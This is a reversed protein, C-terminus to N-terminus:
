DAQKPKTAPKVTTKAASKAASKATPKRSRATKKAAPTPPVFTNHESMVSGAVKAFQEQLSSWWDTPSPLDANVKASHADANQGFAQLMALTNRQVELSQITTRLLGANTELWGEVLRLDAIKKDIEEVSLGPVTFASFFSHPTTMAALTGGFWFRAAGYRQAVM